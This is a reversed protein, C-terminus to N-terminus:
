EPATGAAAEPLGAGISGVTRAASADFVFGNVAKLVSRRYKDRDVPKAPNASDVETSSAMKLAFEPSRRVGEGVCVVVVDGSAIHGARVGYLFGGVGIAAASGIRVAKEIAVLRAVDVCYQEPFAVIEGGSERVLKGVLPYLGPKGTALISIETEPNEYVPYDNEWGPQFGSSRAKAWAAAMPACRDTQVLYMRPPKALLGLRQMDRFGKAVGLPGMGGSLAQVYVTPRRALVRLMEYAITKKAELRIPDFGGSASYFGNATAFEAAQRKAEAYDGRVRFVKQGFVGIDADHFRSSREPIFAYLTIGAAALYRAFAVGVNGTSAVVYTGIGAEKLVSAVMSGALDKFTGTSPNNDHRHAYVRCAVGYSRAYAELFPWRELAVNGEGSSVINGPDAVPLFDLYRWLGPREGGGTLLDDFDDWDTAYRAELQASACQPCKQGAEFWSRFDPLITGCRTCELHYKEM